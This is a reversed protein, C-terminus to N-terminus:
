VIHDFKFQKWSPEKFNAETTMQMTTFNGVVDRLDQIGLDDFFCRDKRRAGNVMAACPKFSRAPM